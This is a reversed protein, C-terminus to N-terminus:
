EKVKKQQKEECNHFEQDIIMFEDILNAPTSQMDKYPPCSFRKCFQYEKIRNQSGIDILLNPDAFFAIQMYLAEGLDYGKNIAEDYLRYLEDLVDDINNFEISQISVRRDYDLEPEFDYNDTDSFDFDHLGDNICDYIIDMTSQNLKPKNVDALEKQKDKLEMNLSDIKDQLGKVTAELLEKNDKDM